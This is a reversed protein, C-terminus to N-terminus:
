ATTDVQLGVDAYYEIITNIYRSRQGESRLTLAHRAGAM